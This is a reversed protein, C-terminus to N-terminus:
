FNGISVNKSHFNHPRSIMSTAFLQWIFSLSFYNHINLNRTFQQSYLKVSIM